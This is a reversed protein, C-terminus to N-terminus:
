QQRYVTMKVASLILVCDSLITIMVYSFVWVNLDTKKVAYNSTTQYYVYIFTLCSVLTKFGTM